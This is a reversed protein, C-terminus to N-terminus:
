PGRQEQDVQGNGREALSGPALNATRLTRLNRRDQSSKGQNKKFGLGEKQHENSDMGYLAEEMETALIDNM